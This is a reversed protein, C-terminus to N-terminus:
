NSLHVHLVCLGLSWTLSIVPCVCVDLLVFDFGSSVLSWCLESLGSLLKSEEDSESHSDLVSSIISAESHFMFYAMIKGPVILLFLVIIRNPVPVFIEHIDLAHKSLSFGWALILAFLSACPLSHWHFCNHDLQFSWM